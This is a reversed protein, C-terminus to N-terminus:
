VISGLCPYLFLRDRAIGHSPFNSFSLCRSALWVRRSVAKFFESAEFGWACALLLAEHASGRRGRLGLDRLCSWGFSGFM